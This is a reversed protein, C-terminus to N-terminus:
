KKEKSIEWGVEEMYDTVYHMLVSAKHLDIVIEKKTKKCYADSCMHVIHYVEFAMDVISEPIKKAKIKKM